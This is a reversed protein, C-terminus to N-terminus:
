RGSSRRSGSGDHVYVLGLTSPRSHRIASALSRKRRPCSAPPTGLGEGGRHRQRQDVGAIFQKKEEHLAAQAIQDQRVQERYAQQDARFRRHAESPVDELGQDVSVDSCCAAVSPPGCLLDQADATPIRSCVHGQGAMFADAVTQRRSRDDDARKTRVATRQTDYAAELEHNRAAARYLDEVTPPADYSPATDIRVIGNTDREFRPRLKLRAVGQRDVSVLHLRHSPVQLTIQQLSRGDGGSLLSAKRGDESLLYSATASLTRAAETVPTTAASLSGAQRDVFRTVTDMVADKGRATPAHGVSLLEHRSFRPGLRRPQARVAQSGKQDILSSGRQAPVGRPHM